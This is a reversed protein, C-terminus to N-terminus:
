LEKMALPQYTVPLWHLTISFLLCALTYLLVTIIYRLLSRQGVPHKFSLRLVSLLSCGDSPLLSVSRSLVGLSTSMWGDSLFM